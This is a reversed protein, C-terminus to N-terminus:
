NHIKNKGKTLDSQNENESALVGHRAPQILLFPIILLCFLINQKQLTFRRDQQSLRTWNSDRISM